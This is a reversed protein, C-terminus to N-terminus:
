FRNENKYLCIKYRTEEHCNCKKGCFIEKWKNLHPADGYLKSERLDVKREKARKEEDSM